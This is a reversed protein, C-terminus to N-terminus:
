GRAARARRNQEAEFASFNGERAASIAPDEGAAGRGGVEAAPKPARPKPEASAEKKEADPKFKGDEGRAPTDSTKGAKGTKLQEKVLSETLAIKRLAGGPNTKALQVFSSLDEAKAGLVYMLDILVDSENLLAKVAFPIQPDNFVTGTAGVVKEQVDPYRTKAEELKAIMEKAATEQAIRQREAAIEQRAEWKAEHKAAARIFDEYTAKPNEAFFKKEDLPQYEEAKPAPQSGQKDDRKEPQQTRREAVELRERLSKTESLLEEIRKATDEKTKLHPKQSDKETASESATVAPKKDPAPDPAAANKKDSAPASDQRAPAKPIAGTRTWEALQDTTWGSETTQPTQTAASDVTTVASAATSM